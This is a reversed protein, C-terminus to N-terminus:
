LDDFLESIGNNDSDLNFFYDPDSPLPSLRLMGTGANTPPPSMSSCLGDHVSSPLTQQASKTDQDAQPAGPQEDLQSILFVDIAGMSSKLFIQYRRNGDEMGEDPDPVELTTGGPAKIAVITDGDMSRLNRIDDHTVFACQENEGDDAIERLSNQMLNIYEDLMMEQAQLQHNQTKLTDLDQKLECSSSLGMGKWQINNKSKKEILGIGELVNTIDYIRRKQVNLATAAVNLDLVGDDAQQILQVFKKTLLGLSSDYRCGRDKDNSSPALALELGSTSGPTTLPTAPSNGNTDDDKKSKKKQRRSSIGDADNMDLSDPRRGRREGPESEAPLPFTSGTGIFDLFGEVGAAYHTQEEAM